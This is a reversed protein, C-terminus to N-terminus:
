LQCATLTVALQHWGYNEARRHMSSGKCCALHRLQVQLHSIRSLTYHPPHPAQRQTLM